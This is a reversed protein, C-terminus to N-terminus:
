LRCTESMSSYFGESENTRNGDAFSDQGSVTNGTQSYFGVSSHEISATSVDYGVDAVEPSSNGSRQRTTISRVGTFPDTYRNKKNKKSLVCKAFNFLYVLTKLRQEWCLDVDHSLRTASYNATTVLCGAIPKGVV